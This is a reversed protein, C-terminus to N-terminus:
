SINYTYSPNRAIDGGIRSTIIQNKKSNSSMQHFLKLLVTKSNYLQRGRRVVEQRVRGQLSFTKCCLNSWYPGNVESLESMSLSQTQVYNFVLSFIAQFLHAKIKKMIIILKSTHLQQLQQCRPRQRMSLHSNSSYGRFVSLLPFPSVTHNIFSSPM